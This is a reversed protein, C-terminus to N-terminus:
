SDFGWIVYLAIISESHLLSISRYEPFYQPSIHGSLSPFLQSHLLVYFNGTKDESGAAVKKIVLVGKLDSSSEEKMLRNIREVIAWFWEDTVRCRIRFSMWECCKHAKGWNSARRLSRFSCAYYFPSWKRAIVAVFKLPIVNPIVEMQQMLSSLQLDPQKNPM